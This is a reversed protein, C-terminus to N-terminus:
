VKKSFFVMEKKEEFGNKKYFRYAPMNRDTLFALSSIGKEKVKEGIAEMFGSGTGKQQAQPVIGFEDIWYEKGDMWSVTKGVAMGIMNEDQFLGFALSNKNEMLETIYAHLQRGSWTDNWPERCFIDAMLKEIAEIYTIDLERIVM